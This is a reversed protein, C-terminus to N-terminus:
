TTPSGDDTAGVRPPADMEVVAPAAQKPVDSPPEVTIRPLPVVVRAIGRLLRSRQIWAAGQPPLDPDDNYAGLPSGVLVVASLIWVLEGLLGITAIAIAVVRMPSVDDPPVLTLTTGALFALIGLRFARRFRREWISHAHVLLWQEVYLQRETYQPRWARLDDPTAMFARAWLSCQMAAIFFIVATVLLALSVSPWRLEAGSLIIGLQAFSFGALLTAAVVGYSEITAAYGYPWIPRWTETGV